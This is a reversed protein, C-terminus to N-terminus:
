CIHQMSSDYCVSYGINSDGYDCVEMDVSVAPLLLLLLCLMCYYYGDITYVANLQYSCRPLCM